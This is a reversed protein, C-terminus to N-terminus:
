AFKRRVAEVAAAASAVPDRPSPYSDPYEEFTLPGAFGQKTLLTWFAVIDITDEPGGPQTMRGEATLGKLHVGVCDPGLTECIEKISTPTESLLSVPDIICGLAKHPVAKKVALYQEGTNVIGMYPELGYRIGHSAAVDCLHGVASVVRDWAEEDPMTEPKMGVLDQVHSAGWEAALRICEETYRLREKLEDADATAYGFRDFTHRSGGAASLGNLTLGLSELLRPLSRRFNRGLSYPYASQGLWACIDVTEYGLGAITPLIEDLPAAARVITDGPRTKSKYSGPPGKHVLIWRGFGGTLTGIRPAAMAGNGTTAAM